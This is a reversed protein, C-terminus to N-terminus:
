IQKILEPMAHHDHQHASPITHVFDEDLLLGHFWAQFLYLACLMRPCGTKCQTINSPPRRHGYQSVSQAFMFLPPCLGYLIDRTDHKKKGNKLQRLLKDNAEHFEEAPPFDFESGLAAIGFWPFEDLKERAIKLLADAAFDLVERKCDKWAKAPEQSLKAAIAKLASQVSGGKMDDRQVHDESGNIQPIVDLDNQISETWDALSISLIPRSWEVTGDSLVTSSRAVDYIVLNLASASSSGWPPTKRWQKGDTKQSIFSGKICHQPAANNRSTYPYNSADDWTSAESTTNNPLNMSDLLPMPPNVHKSCKKAILARHEEALDKVPMVDSSPWGGFYDEMCDICGFWRKGDSDAIPAWVTCAALTCDEGLCREPKKKKLDKVAIVEILGWKEEGEVAEDGDPNEETESTTNNSIDMTDEYEQHSAATNDDLKTASEIDLCNRCGSEDIIIDRCVSCILSSTTPLNSSDVGEHDAHPISATTADLIEEEVHETDFQNVVEDPLVADHMAQLSTSPQHLGGTTVPSDHHSSPPSSLSSLQLGITDNNAEEESEEPIGEADDVDADDEQPMEEEAEDNAAIGRAFRQICCAADYQKKFHHLIALKEEIGSRGITSAPPLTKRRRDARWNRHVTRQQKKRPVRSSAQMPVAVRVNQNEQGNSNLENGNTLSHHLHNPPHQNTPQAHSYKGLAVRAMFRLFKGAVGFWREQGNSGIDHGDEDISISGIPRKRSGAGVSASLTPARQEPRASGTSLAGENKNSSAASRSFESGGSEEGNGDNIPIPLGVNSAAHHETLAIDNMRGVSPPRHLHLTCLAFLFSLSSVSLSLSNLVCPTAKALIALLAKGRVQPSGIGEWSLTCRMQYGEQPNVLRTPYM